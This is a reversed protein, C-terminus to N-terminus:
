RSYYEVILRSEITAMVDEGTPLGTVTGSMSETDLQLYDPVPRRPIDETLAKYFDKEKRSPKWGIIDGQKVIYSPINTNRGNVQFHGHQVLQRAQNRSEAFGLRFVANDLRRELMQLLYEGTVGPSRFAQDMYNRFQRELVGYIYRAKQKERLQIGHDSLRRPRGGGRSGPTSRRREVACRPSFCREGKLFLKENVQRCLRCVPGTYRGM